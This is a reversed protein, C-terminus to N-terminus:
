PFVISDTVVRGGDTTATDNELTLWIKGWEQGWILVEVDPTSRALTIMLVDVPDATTEDGAPAAPIFASGPQVALVLVRHFTQTTQLSLAGTTADEGQSSILVGVTDGAKVAGGVAREVPLAITVSQMGEPVPVDGRANADTASMWRSALLQEGPLLAVGAVLGDLESLDAVRGSVAAIAPIEDIVLYEDLEEALTGAPVETEIIYARVLEAGDAARQDATRVYNLLLVSGAIALLIALIAGILRIKM